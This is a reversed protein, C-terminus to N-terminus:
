VITDAVYASNVIEDLQPFDLEASPGDVRIVPTDDKLAPLFQSPLYMYVDKSFRARKQREAAVFDKLKDIDQNLIQRFRRRRVIEAIAQEYAQPM